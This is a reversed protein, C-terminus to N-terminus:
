SPINGKNAAYWEKARGIERKIDEEWDDGGVDGYDFKQEGMSGTLREIAYLMADDVRSWPSGDHHVSGSNGNIEKFDRIDYTNGESDDLLAIFKPLSAFHQMQALVEAAESRVYPHEDDLMGHIKEALEAKKADDSRGLTYAVSVARGRVGPDPDDLSKKVEDWWEARNSLGYASDARFLIESKVYAPDNQMAKLVAGAVADDDEWDDMRYIADMVSYHLEPKGDTSMLEVLKDIVPRSPPDVAVSAGGAKLAAAQVSGDDSGLRKLIVQHYEENVIPYDKYEQSYWTNDMARLAAAQVAPDESTDALYLFAQANEAKDTEQYDFAGNKMGAVLAEAKAQVDDGGGQKEEVPAEAKVAGDGAPPESPQEASGGCGVLAGVLILLIPYRYSSSM